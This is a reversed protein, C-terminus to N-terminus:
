TQIGDAGRSFRLSRVVSLILIFYFLFFVRPYIHFNGINAAPMVIPWLASVFFAALLTPWIKGTGLWAMSVVLPAPKKFLTLTLRTHRVAALLVGAGMAIALFPGFHQNYLRLLERVYLYTMQLFSKGYGFNEMGVAVGARDVATNTIETLATQFSGLAGAVQLLHLFHAITFGMGPVVVGWFLWAASAEGGEARRMLWLPVAAFSVVFAIDFSICGQAFGALFLGIFHWARLGGRWLSHILASLQLLVLAYSYGELHLGPMYTSTMPLIACWLGILAAQDLGFAGALTRFFVVLGLASFILPVMRWMWIRDMGFCRALVGCLLNPGAPYHTYVWQNPDSLHAPFGNRYILKVLGNTDIHDNYTGDKPFRGGFLLRPLGAHLTFGETAYAEGSRVADAEDHSDFPSLGNGIKGLLLVQVVALFMAIFVFIKRATSPRLLVPSPPASNM